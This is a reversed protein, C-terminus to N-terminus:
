EIFFLVIKNRVRMVFMIDGNRYSFFPACYNFDTVRAAVTRCANAALFIISHLFTRSVLKM